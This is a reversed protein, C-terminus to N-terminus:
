GIFLLLICNYRSLMIIIMVMYIIKDTALYTITIDAQRVAFLTPVCQRGQRAAPQQRGFQPHRREAFQM